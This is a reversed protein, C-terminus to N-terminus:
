DAACKEGGSRWAAVCGGRLDRFEGLEHFEGLLAGQLGFLYLGLLRKDVSLELIRGGFDLRHLPPQVSWAVQCLFKSPPFPEPLDLAARTM